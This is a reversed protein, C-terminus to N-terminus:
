PVAVLVDAHAARGRYFVLTMILFAGAALCLLALADVAGPQLMQVGAMTAAVLYELAGDGVRVSLVHACFISVNRVEYCCM